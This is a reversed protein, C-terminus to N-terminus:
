SAVRDVTVQPLPIIIDGRYGRDRLKPIIHKAVHWSFLIATEPQDEILRAEDVVPIETGPMYHGLKDSTPVECVAAIDDATLGCYQVVTAARAAAGTGYVEGIGNAVAIVDRIDSRTERVRAAYDVDSCAVAQVVPALETKVAYTRFSGGHTGIPEIREVHLGHRQLLDAYTGPSYFRLHEHYLCDWQMGDTINAVDHNESVFVGDDALLNAVGDLVDHINEVHAMVNCATVIKAPGHLSKLSKAVLSGFFAQNPLIGYEAVGRVQDTPDVAVRKYKDSFCRLLTGDNAGIDVVVDGPELWIEASLALHAFDDWLAQTNGSSYPYDAHFVISPDVICSLQLLGCDACELLELPYHTEEKPVDGVRPMTCALQQYGLFVISDLNPSDCSGCAHVIRSSAM